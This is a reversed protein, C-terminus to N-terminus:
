ADLWLGYNYLIIMVFENDIYEQEDVFQGLFMPNTQYRETWNMTTVM